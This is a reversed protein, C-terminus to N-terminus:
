HASDTQGNIWDLVTRIAKSRDVENFSEHRFSPFLQREANPLEGIPASSAPPVITDAGGHLVLTPLSLAEMANSARDMSGLMEAGLRATTKTYVLPDAFYAEGVAPDSSLQEGKLDNPLALKPLIKSLVKAAARKAAPVDAALLPSSLVLLDPQPRSSLAYLLAILGGMSHGLLVVPLGLKRRETLRDEVDGLYEDFSNVFARTGGSEGFGRLDFAATDM